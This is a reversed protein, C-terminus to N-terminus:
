GSNLPIGWLQNNYYMPNIAPLYTDTLQQKPFLDEPLPALFGSKAWNPVWGYFPNALDPGQGVPVSVAIKENIDDYDIDTVTITINPYITNFDSIVAGIAQDYNAFNVQWYQLTVPAPTPTVTAPVATPMATAQAATPQTTATAQAATPQAPQTNTPQAPQTPSSTAAPACAALVTAAAAMATGKLFQQRSIQKPKM